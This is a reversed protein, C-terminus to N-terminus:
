DQGLAMRFLESVVWDGRLLTEESAMRVSSPSNSEFLHYAFRKYVGEWSRGDSCALEASNTGTQMLETAACPRWCPAGVYKKRRKHHEERRMGTISGQSCGDSASTSSLRRFLMQGSSDPAFSSRHMDESFFAVSFKEDINHLIGALVRHGINEGLGAWPIHCKQRETKGDPQFCCVGNKLDAEYTEEHQCTQSLQKKIQDWWKQPLACNPRVAMANSSFDGRLVDQGQVTYTVLNADELLDTMSQVDCAFLVDGDVYLGGHHALVGARVLDSKAGFDPLKHWLSPLDPIFSQVTSDNVLHIDYRDSPAHHRLARLSLEVLPSQDDQEYQYVVWIPMKGSEFGLRKHREIADSLDEQKRCAVGRSEVEDNGASYISVKHGSHQQLVAIDESVAAVL